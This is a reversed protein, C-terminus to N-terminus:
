TRGDSGSGEGRPGGPRASASLALALAEFEEVSLTEARRTVDVGARGGLEVATLGFRGALRSLSRRLMKRRGAFAEHVVESYVDADASREPAREFDLEVVASDVAPRPHFCTRRVPFLSTVRAHFSVVSGLASAAGGGALGALRDAVERQVMLVARAVRSRGDMLVGLLPSTVAYPINGVVVLRGEASAMVQDHWLLEAGTFISRGKQRVVRARATILEAVPVPKLYRVNLASTVIPESVTMAAYASVEDLLAAIIGGHAMGQWGQYEAPLRIDFSAERNGADVRPEM